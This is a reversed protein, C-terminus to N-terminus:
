EDLWGGDQGGALGLSQAHYYIPAVAKRWLGGCGAVPSRARLQQIVSIGGLDM